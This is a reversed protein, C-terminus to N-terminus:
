NLAQYASFETPHLSSYLTPSSLKRKIPPTGRNIPLICIKKSQLWGIKRVDLTFKIMFDGAKKSFGFINLISVKILITVVLTIM